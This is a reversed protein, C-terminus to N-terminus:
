CTRTLRLGLGLVGFALVSLVSSPEPVSTGNPQLTQCADIEFFTNNADFFDTAGITCSFPSSVAISFFNQPGNEPDGDSPDIQRILEGTEPNVEAIFGQQGNGSLNGGAVWLDGEEDFLLGTASLVQAVFEGDTDFTLPIGTQIAEDVDDGLFRRIEGTRVGDPDFGIGTYLNGLYDFGIGASAGPINDIVTQIEGTSLLLREVESGSFNGEGRNVFIEDTQELRFSASFNLPINAILTAEGGTIPLTFISGNFPEPFAGAGTGLVFFSADPSTVIFAPDVGGEVESPLTGLFNFTSSGPQEQLSVDFGTYIALSDDPLFDFTTFFADADPSPLVVDQALADSVAFVVSTAIPVSLLWYFRVESMIRLM